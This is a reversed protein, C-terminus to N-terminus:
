SIEKMTALYKEYLENYNLESREMWSLIEEEAYKQEFPNWEECIDLENLTDRFRRFPRTQTFKQFVSTVSRTKRMMGISVRNM